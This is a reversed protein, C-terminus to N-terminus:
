KRSKKTENVQRLLDNRTNEMRTTKDIIDHVASDGSALVNTLETKEAVLNEYVVTVAKCEAVAKGINKKLRMLRNRM